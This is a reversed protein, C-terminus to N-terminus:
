DGGEDLADLLDASELGRVLTQAFRALPAGDVVEHNASVTLCLVERAEGNPGFRSAVSGIILSLDHLGPASVGWGAGGAGFMGVSSVLLTGTLRKARAPSALLVRYVLRRLVAPLLLFARTGRRKGGLGTGQVGRLEEHLERVSRAHVARLVHALAFRRGEVEVEVIATADVAAFMVVRGFLDRVAHVEPHAHVARGVCALVYATFSVREGSRAKHAELRRRARTVDVELFAHMMPKRCGLRLTDLVLRRERPFPVRTFAEDNSM